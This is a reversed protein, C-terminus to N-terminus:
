RVRATVPVLCSCGGSRRWTLTDTNTKTDTDTDVATRHGIADADTLADTNAGPHADPMDCVCSQVDADADAGRNRHPHTDCLAAHDVGQRRDRNGDADANSFGGSHCLSM